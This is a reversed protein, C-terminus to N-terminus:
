LRLGTEPFYFVPCPPFGQGMLYPDFQDGARGGSM